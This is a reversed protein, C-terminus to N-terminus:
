PSKFMLPFYYKLPNVGQPYLASDGANYNADGSYQAQLNHTGVTLSSATFTAQGGVLPQTAITKRPARSPTSSTLEYFDVTGTPTGGSPSTVTVTFTVSNGVISPNASSTITTTTRGKQNTLDWNALFAGGAFNATVDYAGAIGNAAAGTSIVGSANSTRPNSALVASAGSAPVTYTVVIGGLLNGNADLVTAQLASAFAQNIPTQQGGGNTASVVYPQAEFAGIDCFGNAIRRPFGRQDTAPCNAPNAANIASSGSGLTMTQTGGGNDHLVSVHPDTTIINTGAYGGQVVSNSVSPINGSSGVQPGSPATNGWLITNSITVTSFTSHIGGGDSASNGSFTVNTLTPSAYLSFVGGGVTGASNLSFTMNTLTLNSSYFFLLGGGAYASSNLSFTVNTLTPTGYYNYMGGGSAYARNHSFTVNTLTPSGYENYIGAGSNARNDSFIVNSLTPSGYSNWMGGGNVAHNGSFGVNTVTPSGHSIYMGGFGNGATVWFGDLLATSDTYSGSVVHDSNTGVILLTDNDELDGSLLTFNAVFNRQDRATESGAFGGYLAIGNRLQFTANQDGTTTPTYTGSAVWLEDGSVAVTTLGYQLGCPNSWDTLNGCTGSTAGTTTVRIVDPNAHAILPTRVLFFVSFLALLYVPKIGFRTLSLPPM